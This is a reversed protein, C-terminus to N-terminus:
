CEFWKQQSDDPDFISDHNCEYDFDVDLVPQLIEMFKSFPCLSDACAPVVM